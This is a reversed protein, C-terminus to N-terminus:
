RTMAACRPCAAERAVEADFSWSCAPCTRTETTPRYEVGLTLASHLSGPRRRQREREADEALRAAEAAAAEKQSRDEAVIDAPRPPMTGPGHGRPCLESLVGIFISHCARCWYRVSAPRDERLETGCDPCDGHASIRRTRCAWCFRAIVLARRRAAEEEAKRERDRREADERGRVQEAALAERAEREARREPTEPEPPRPAPAAEAPAPREHARRYEEALESFMKKPRRRSAIAAALCTANAYDAHSGHSRPHNVRFKGGAMPTKELNVLERRLTPDDLVTIRGETFLPEVELYGDSATFGHDSDFLLGHRRWAQEVWEAGYKDSRVERVRYRKALDAYEATVAELDITSDGRTARGRLIDQVVREDAGSGETHVIAATYHNSGGGSPDIAMTYRVGERFPLERGTAALDILHQPLFSTVNDIWEAEFERRFRVPDLRREQALRRETIAPNMLQSTARWVLADPDDRGFSRAFDDHLVGSRMFPTSIKILKTRDGFAVMGRRVSTQIEVDSDAQGELRFFAVEDLIAVPISFGRMSRLTSPFCRVEVGNTLRLSDRLPEEALSQRLVPSQQLYAVIYNFAIATPKADQAVLVVTPTEGKGVLKEWGGFVAEYCVIPAAIRSDKGGRAGCIVTLEGPQESPPRRAACLEWIDKQEATAFPLCYYGRLLAEQAPSLGLGLLRPDKIFTIIDPAPPAGRQAPRTVTASV